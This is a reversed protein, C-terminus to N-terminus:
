WYESATLAADPEPYTKEPYVTTEPEPTEKASAALALVVAVRVPPSAEMRIRRVGANSWKVCVPVQAQGFPFPLVLM